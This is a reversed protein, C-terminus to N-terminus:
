RLFRTHDPLSPLAPRNEYTLLTKGILVSVVSFHKPCAGSPTCAEHAKNVQPHMKM